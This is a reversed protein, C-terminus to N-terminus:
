DLIRAFTRQVLLLHRIFRMAAEDHRSRVEEREDFQPVVQALLLSRHRRTLETPQALALEEIVQANAFPLIEEPLQALRGGLEADLTARFRCMWIANMLRQQGAEQRM